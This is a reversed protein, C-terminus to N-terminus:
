SLEKIVEEIAKQDKEKDLKQSLFKELSLVLLESIEAKAEAVIGKREQKIKEMEKATKAEMDTNAKALIEQYRAEAKNHAETIIVSAESKAQSIIVKSEESSKELKKEAEESDSLGKDIKERREELIKFIPKYAFRWLVFVLLAFNFFQALLIRVDLGLASILSNM